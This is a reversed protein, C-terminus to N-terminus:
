NKFMAIFKDYKKSECISIVKAISDIRKYINSFLDEYNLISEKQLCLMVVLRVQGVEWPIPNKLIGIAVANKFVKGKAGHPIAVMNGIETTAIKERDIYSNKMEEDIYDKQLLINSMYNIVDFKNDFDLDTFFLEKNFIESLNINYYIKGTDLFKEIIKIEKDDLFPSVNIVPIDKINVPVTAIIFDVDLVKVYDILYSPIVKLIEIKKDFKAELKAKILMSTGVGSACVIIAKLSKENINEHSRQLAGGIHIAINATENEDIELDLDKELTTKAITALEFAFPYKLKIENAVISQNNVGFDKKICFSKIHRYLYEKFVRDNSLDISTALKLNKTFKEISNLIKEKNEKNNEKIFKNQYNTIYDKTYSKYDKNEEISLSILIYNFINNFEYDTLIINEEQLNNLIELRINGINLKVYDTFFGELSLDKYKINSELICRKLDEIDGDLSIGLKHKSIIKLNYDKLIDKVEKLDNKITSLSVYMDDALNELKLTKNKYLTLIQKLIYSIRDMDNYNTNNELKDVSKIDGVLKYGMGRISDIKVKELTSNINKVEVQITKTSCGIDTALAKSNIPETSNKLIEIIKLQRKNLIYEM